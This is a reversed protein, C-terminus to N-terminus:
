RDSNLAFNFFLVTRSLANKLFIKLFHERPAVQFKGVPWSVNVKVPFRGVLTRANALFLYFSGGPHAHAGALRAPGSLHPRSGPFLVRQGRAPPKPRKAWTAKHGARRSATSLACPAAPRLETGTAGGPSAIMEANQARAGRRGNSKAAAAPLHSSCCAFPEQLLM